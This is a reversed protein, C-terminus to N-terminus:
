REGHRLPRRDGRDRCGPWPGDAAADPRISQGTRQAAQGPRHRRHGGERGAAPPRSGAPRHRGRWPDDSRRLLGRRASGDRQRGHRPDPDARGAHQPIMDPPSTDTGMGVRLGMARYRGFHDIASGHRGSVLPCHVITAGHDRIIELNADPREIHRSGSVYTGHPLLTKDTFFRPKRAMRAPEHWAAEPCPRVRDPSAAISDSRCTWRGRQGEGRPPPAAGAHLDRDPGAGAHDPHPRGARGRAARLIRPAADLEALGRPKTTTPQSPAMRKSWSTAPATAPDSISACALAPPLRPPTRSSRRRRAGPATSSPRSRCRRRSAMASSRQSPMRRRSHRTGGATCRARGREIYSRPWVRGKKWAPQNDFALITTDLDSLADLDVFGPGIIAEGCDRREAVERPFGHGVFLIKGDEFVVEGREISAIAVM